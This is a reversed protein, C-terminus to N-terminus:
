CTTWVTANMSLVKSEASFSMPARRDPSTLETSSVSAAISRMSRYSRSMLAIHTGSKSRARAAALSASRARARPSSRGSSPRGTVTLSDYSTAPSGVVHPM